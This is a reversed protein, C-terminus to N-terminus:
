KRKRRTSSRRTKRSRGGYYRMNRSLVVDGKQYFHTDACLYYKKAKSFLGYIDMMFHIGLELLPTFDDTIGKKYKSGWIPDHGTLIIHKISRPNIRSLAQKYRRMEEELRTKHSYKLKKKKKTKAGGSTLVLRNCDIFKMWDETFYTTNLYVILTSGEQKYLHKYNFREPRMNMYELQLKTVICTVNDIHEVERIPEVDHNGLLVQVPANLRELCDFGSILKEKELSKIKVEEGHRIETTKKPYYNDGAIIYFDPRENNQKIKNFVASMGNSRRNDNCFGKNWCGFFIFEKM